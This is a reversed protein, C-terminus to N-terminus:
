IPKLQLGATFVWCVADEHDWVAIVDNHDCDAREQAKNIAVTESDYYTLKDEPQPDLLRGVVYHTPSPPVAPHRPKVDGDHDWYRILFTIPRGCSRCTSKDGHKPM